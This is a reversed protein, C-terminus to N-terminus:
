RVLLDLPVKLARAILALAHATGKRRGNELDSLYSQSLHTRSQLELQTMGRWARIVRVANDGATLRDVVSKPLVVEDGAAIAARAKRVIRATGADESEARAVLREYEAKPLVVLEEGGTTKFQVKTMM